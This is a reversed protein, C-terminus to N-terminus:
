PSCSQKLTHAYNNLFYQLYNHEFSSQWAPKMRFNRKETYCPWSQTHIWGQDLAWILEVGITLTNSTQLEVFKSCLRLNTVMYIQSFILGLSQRDSPSFVMEGHYVLWVSWTALAVTRAASSERWRSEHRRRRSKHGLQVPRARAVDDHILGAPLVFEVVTSARRPPVRYARRHGGGGPRAGRPEIKVGCWWSERGSDQWRRHPQWPTLWSNV